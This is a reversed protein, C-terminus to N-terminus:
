LDDELRWALNARAVASLAVEVRRGDLDLIARREKAEGEATLGLLTGEIQKDERDLPAYGRVRVRLGAFREWDSERSLPREVGPSSVELIWDGEDGIAEFRERVARSIVACDDVTLSSREPPDEPREVKLRLLPRRRSGGRELSVLAFGLAEVLGEVEGQLDAVAM